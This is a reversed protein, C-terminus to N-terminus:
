CTKIISTLAALYELKHLQRHPVKLNLYLCQPSFCDTQQSLSELLVPSQSYAWCYQSYPNEFTDWHLPVYLGSHSGNMCPSDLVVLNTFLIVTILSNSGIGLKPWISLLRGSPAYSFLGLPLIVLSIGHSDTCAPQCGAWM